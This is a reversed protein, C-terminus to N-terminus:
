KRSRRSGDFALYVAAGIIGALAAVRLASGGIRSAEQPHDFMWCVASALPALAAETRSMYVTRGDVEVPITDTIPELETNRRTM